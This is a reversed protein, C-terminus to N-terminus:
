MQLAEELCSAGAVRKKEEEELQRQPARVELTGGEDAQLDLVVVRKAVKPKPPKTGWAFHLDM